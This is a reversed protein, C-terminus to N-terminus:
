TLLWILLYDFSLRVDGYIFNLSLHTIYPYKITALCVYSLRLFTTIVRTPAIHIVTGVLYLVRKFMYKYIKLIEIFGRVPIIFSDNTIRPHYEVRMNLYKKISCEQNKATINENSQGLNYYNSVKCGESLAAVLEAGPVNVEKSQFIDSLLLLHPVGIRKMDAFKDKISIDRIDLVVSLGKMLLFNKVAVAAETDENCSIIAIDYPAVVQPLKIGYKDFNNYVLVNLLRYIGMGYSNMHIEEKKRGSGEHEMEHKKTYLTGFKFIHAVEVTEDEDERNKSMYARFEHSKVAENMERTHYKIGMTDLIKGYTILFKSYMDEASSEDSHFSYADKMIFEKCRLSNARIEDRFKTNVQYVLLPLFKKSFPSCVDRLVVTALDECTPSLVHEQTDRDIVKYLEKDFPNSGSKFLSAYQMIPFTVEAAGISSMETAIIRKIRNVIRNGVPLITCIGSTLKSAIGCKQLLTKPSASVDESRNNPIGILESNLNSHAKSLGNRYIGSSKHSSYTDYFLNHAGHKFGSSYQIVTIIIIYVAVCKCM